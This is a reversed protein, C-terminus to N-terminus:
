HSCIAYHIEKGAAPSSPSWRPGTAAIASAFTAALCAKANSHHGPQSNPRDVPSLERTMLQARHGVPKKRLHTLQSKPNGWTV